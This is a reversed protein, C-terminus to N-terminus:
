GALELETGTLQEYAKLYKERTKVVIEDPLEPAPPSKDWDLTELHDRVFQKDLNPPNKGAEYQDAPWFRSSDPTLVEDILILGDGNMGFEFKTDAIIIGRAAAYDAADGYLRITNERLQAAIDAGILEVIHAFSINEDHEGQEAKTAPTFIPVELKSALVYGAKLSIGCISGIRQYDKWGSGILYGRAVCEVPVVDLKKVLMSRGSLDKAYPRMPEPYRSVDMSVLHNPLWDFLEFWFKSMATLVKGKDPIGNPMVCDFASIRDTAVMVLCDDFVYIDRVKGRKPADVGDVMTEILAGNRDYNM